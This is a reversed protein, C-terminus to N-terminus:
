VRRAPIALSLKNKDNLDDEAPGRAQPQYHCPSGAMIGVVILCGPIMHSRVLSAELLLVQLWCCDTHLQSM